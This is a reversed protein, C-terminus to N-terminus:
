IQHSYSRPLDDHDLDMRWVRFAGTRGGEGDVQNGSIGLNRACCGGFMRGAVVKRERKRDSRAEGEDDQLDINREM